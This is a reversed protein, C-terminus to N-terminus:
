APIQDIRGFHTLAAVLGRGKGDRISSRLWKYETCLDLCHMPQAWGLQLFCSFEAPLYYGVVLSNQGTPFPATKTARLTDADLRILRDSLIERGIMCHPVPWEGDVAQYEFDIVWIERWNSLNQM